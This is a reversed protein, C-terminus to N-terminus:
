RVASHDGTATTPHESAPATLERHHAASASRVAATREGANGLGARLGTDLTAGGGVSAPFQEIASVRARRRRRAATSPPLSLGSARGGWLDSSCVDSSWDRWYGTHRRKSSFFILRGLGARSFQTRLVLRPM